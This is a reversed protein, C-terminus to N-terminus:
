ASRRAGSTGSSGASCPGYRSGRATGAPPRHSRARRPRRRPPATRPTPRARRTRRRCPAPSLGSLWRAVSSASGSRSAKATSNKTETPMSNLGCHGPRAARAHQRGSAIMTTPLRSAPRRADHAGEALRDGGRQRDGCAQGLDALEGEDQGAEADPEPQHRGFARSRIRAPAMMEITSLGNRNAAAPGGAADGVPPRGGIRRFRRLGQRRGGQRVVVHQDTVAPDPRQDAGRKRAVAALHHHDLGALVAQFSRAAVAGFHEGAIGGVGLDEGGGVQLCARRSNTVM